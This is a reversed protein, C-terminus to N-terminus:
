KEKSIGSRKTTASLKEPRFIVSENKWANILGDKLNTLSHIDFSEPVSVSVSLDIM